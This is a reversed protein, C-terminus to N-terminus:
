AAAAASRLLRRLGCQSRARVSTGRLRLRAQILACLVGCGLVNMRLSGAVPLCFPGVGVVPVVPWSEEVACGQAVGVFRAEVFAPFHARFRVLRLNRCETGARVWDSLGAEAPGQFVGM